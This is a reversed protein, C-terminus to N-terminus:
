YELMSGGSHKFSEYGEPAFTYLRAARKPTPWVVEDLPTLLGLKLIKKTLNSRDLSRGTLAEYISHLENLTFKPPLLRFAVPASPLERRLATLADRLISNHDFALDLELAEGVPVWRGGVLAVHAALAEGTPGAVTMAHAVSLVRGRPDRNVKSYVGSLIATRAALDACHTPLPAESMLPLYLRTLRELAKEITEGHRLFSGPLADCEAYPDKTRRIILVHLQDDTFTFVACDAAVTPQLPQLNAPEREMDETDTIKDKTFKV